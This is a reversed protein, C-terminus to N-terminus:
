SKKVSEIHKCAGRFTAGPCTCSWRGDLLSVTYTNGKSGAVEWTEGKPKEEEAVQIRMDFGWPNKKVEIFKRGRRDIRGQSAFYEPPETGWKSMAVARDGSMLYVHNPQRYPVKWDTVEQLIKLMAPENIM